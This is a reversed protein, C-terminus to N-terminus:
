KKKRGTLKGYVKLVVAKMGGKVIGEDGYYMLEM